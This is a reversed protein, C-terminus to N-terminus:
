ETVQGKHGDDNECLVKYRTKNLSSYIVVGEPRMFGPCHKSGKAILESIHFYVEDTLGVADGQYLVTVREVISPLSEAPRYTNFLALRRERNSYGRGIGPGYWEGFHRGIGLGKLAEKNEEVWAAFGYNDTDKGPTIWRNRSGAFVQGEPTVLVQANTGDLKETVTIIENRLRPIKPFPQFEWPTTNNTTPLDM